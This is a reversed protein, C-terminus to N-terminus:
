CYKGALVAWVFFCPFNVLPLLCCCLWFCIAYFRSWCRGLRRRPRASTEVANREQSDDSRGNATRILSFRSESSQAFPTRNVAPSSGNCHSSAVYTVRINVSSHIGPLGSIGNSSVVTTQGKDDATTTAVKYPPPCLDCIADGYTPLLRLDSYDVSAPWIDHYTPPLDDLSVTCIDVNLNDDDM